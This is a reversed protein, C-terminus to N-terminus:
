RVVTRYCLKVWPESATGLTQWVVTMYCVLNLGPNVTGFNHLM